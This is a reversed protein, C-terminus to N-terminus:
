TTLRRTADTPCDALAPIGGSKARMSDTMGNLYGSAEPSMAANAAQELLTTEVPLTPRKGKLGQMYVQFQRELGYSPTTNKPQKNM